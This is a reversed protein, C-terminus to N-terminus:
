KNSGIKETSSENLLQNFRRIVDKKNNSYRYEIDNGISFDSNVFRISHERGPFYNAGAIDYNESSIFIWGDQYPTLTSWSVRSGFFKITNPKFWHNSNTIIQQWLENQKNM